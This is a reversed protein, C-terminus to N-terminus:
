SVWMELPGRLVAVLKSSLMKCNGNWGSQWSHARSPVLSPELVRTGTGWWPPCVTKAVDFREGHGVGRNRSKQAQQERKMFHSEGYPSSRSM